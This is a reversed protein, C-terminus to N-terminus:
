GGARDTPTVHAERGFFRMSAELPVVLKGSLSVVSDTPLTDPDIWLAPPDFYRACSVCRLDGDRDPLLLNPCRRCRPKAAVWRLFPDLHKSARTAITM